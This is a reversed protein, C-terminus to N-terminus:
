GEFITVRGEKSDQRQGQRQRIITACNSICTDIWPSLSLPRFDCPLTGAVSLPGSLVVGVKRCRNTKNFDNLDSSPLRM